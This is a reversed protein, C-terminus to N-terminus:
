KGKESKGEKGEKGKKGEKGEEGEEGEKGEEGEEGEEGEVGEEEETEVEEEEEKKPTVVTLVTFNVESLIEIAGEVPIEEVHVSDGINLGSIDIKISEPVELPLCLIELERRVLQLVGGMEVGEAKGVTEVPVMVKIKRDVAVGYFDAHVMNRSVPHVQLDKLMASRTDSGDGLVLNVIVQSTASTKMVQELDKSDVSLSFTETGQGYFVAPIRGNRRLARAAGKGSTERINAKLQTFEM